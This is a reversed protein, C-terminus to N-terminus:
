IELQVKKSEKQLNKVGTIGGEALSIDVPTNKKWAGNTFDPVDISNSRNAVSWESLPAIASWLAADYVDQDLPLGNRLCDILRWDMMFDMGGHGGIKKAMEGVVKVIEPTYKKELEEIEKEKLWQHGRAIKPPYPWKRAMGKTGSVLHIRSYPRPSTVDHQIMITRGKYTKITTTNMNGRYDKGAFPEFFPDELALENAIKQMQFDNSSMSTLYEMKDGRNIDMIQCIPGLGHTPYLNGNRTNEKLRWMDAYGDKDFNLFRLDHIYAGEGHVIEGFFGNRAMNLTLLEFFDYCCNELMMCHKKTRESTEVLQWCEDITKAAPVEVGVHKDNEMAYVAMPTHTDWPTCIYVLDIDPDDCLKKWAEESGSFSKAKPLGRETLIKQTTDVRDSYKDCLAAIEVGEIHLMRIVAGPGRMGLGIFGVRVKELKPARYGCMNFKQHYNKRKLISNEKDSISCATSLGTAILGSGLTIKKIFNRRNNSM